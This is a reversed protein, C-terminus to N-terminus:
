RFRGGSCAGGAGGASSGCAGSGAEESQAKRTPDAEDGTGYTPLQLRNVRISRSVSSNLNLHDFKVM